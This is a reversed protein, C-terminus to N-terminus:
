FNHHALIQFLERVIEIITIFAYVGGLVILVIKWVKNTVIFALLLPVASYIFNFFSSFYRILQFNGPNHFAIAIWFLKSAMMFFIITIIITDPFKSKEVRVSTESNLNHGCKMCFSANVDNETSCQNCIM